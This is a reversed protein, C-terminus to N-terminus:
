LVFVEPWLHSLHFPATTLSLHSGQTRETVDGVDAARVGRQQAVHTGVWPGSLCRDMKVSGRFTGGVPVVCLFM